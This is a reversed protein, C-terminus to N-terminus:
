REIKNEFFKPSKVTAGEPSSMTPNADDDDDPAASLLYRLFGPTLVTLPNVSLAPDNLPGKVSYTAALLGSGPEGVILKGILPIRGIVSNLTYAPVITGRINARDQHFNLRGSFTIGIESGVSRGKSLRIVGDRYRFPASFKAFEVGSDSSMLNSMGQLSALALIRAMVPAKSIRFGSVDAKGVFATGARSDDKTASLRLTGGKITDVLNLARFAAGADATRATLTRKNGSTVLRIMVDKDKGVKGALLIRRWLKGDYNAEGRVDAVYRDPAFYLRDLRGKVALPLLKVEGTESKNKMIRTLDLSKGIVVARKNGLVDGYIHAKVDTRPAVLRQLELEQLTEGDKHFTARGAADITETNLTFRKIAHIRHGKLVISLTGKGPQGPKKTLRLLPLVLGTRRLDFTGSITNTGDDLGTVGIDADFSGSLMGDVAFGLKSLAGVAFPAKIAFKRRFAVKDAFKETWAIKAASGALAGDGSLTMGSKTLDLTMRGGVIDLGFLAKRWSVGTLQAKADIQIQDIKLADILPFIMKLRTQARGKVALPNVGLKQAFRFPKRNLVRLYAPLQGESWVDITMYDVPTDFGRIAVVGRTLKVGEVVGSDVRFKMDASSFTAAGSVKHVPPLHKQYRIVLDEFKFAGELTNLRIESDDDNFVELAVRVTMDNVRGASINKDVWERANYKLRDPWFKAFDKIAIGSVSVKGLYTVKGGSNEVLGVVNVVPGDLEVRFTDLQLNGLGNTFRGRTRLSRVKLDPNYFQPLVLRGQGGALAFDAAKIQGNGRASVTITGSLPIKLHRLATLRGTASVFLAPDFKKFRLAVVATDNARKYVGNVNFRVRQKNITLVMSADARLGAANRTLSMNVDPAVWKREIYKDDITLHGNVIHVAKLWALSGAGGKGGSLAKLVGPMFQQKVTKTRQIGFNIQGDPRRVLHLRPGYVYLNSPALRGSLMAGGSFHVSIAPFTALVQGDARITRVDRAHVHFGKDWGAWRIITTGVKVQYSGDSATLAREIYPSLFNASVPGQSLRWVAGGTVLIIAGVLFLCVKLVRKVRKRIM